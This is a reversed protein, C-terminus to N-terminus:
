KTGSVQYYFQYIDGLIRKATYDQISHICNEPSFKGTKLVAIVADGLMEPTRETCIIGSVGNKVVRRVEGVDPSVVPLGCALAELSSRPMGEFASTLLFVDSIRMLKAVEGAPLAGMFKVKESLNYERVKQGIKDKMAGTGAMILSANPVMEQVYSFTKILLLPDKQGEFRGVFLILKDHMSFANERMFRSREKERKAEAYPYFIEVDVWTPIFSIREKLVPYRKKYFRVGDERVMFVKKFQNIQRKELYFYLGPFKAWREDTQPNYLDITHEHLFLVKNTRVHTFPFSTEIRHFELTRNELSIKHRHMFISLTFKLTLPIITRVNENHVFMTPMFKFNKDYLKVEHWKGIARKGKNSTIGVFEIDLDEPAHKIFDKVFTTIGEIKDGFPDMQHFVLIKTRHM